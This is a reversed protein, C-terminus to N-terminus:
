RAYAILDAVIEKSSYCYLYATKIFQSSGSVGSDVRYFTGFESIKGDRLHVLTVVMDDRPCFTHRLSQVDHHEYFKHRAATERYLGYFDDIEDAKDELLRTNPRMAPVFDTTLQHCFDLSELKPINILHHYFASNSFHFPLELGSTFVASYIDHSNFRRRIENILVPALRHNRIESHLCLFNILALDAVDGDINFQVHRGHVFGYIQDGKKLCVTYADKARPADLQWEIYRRSYVLRFKSKPDRSYNEDLFSVLDDIDARDFTVLKFGPPLPADEKYAHTKSQNGKVPQTSWFEHHQTM